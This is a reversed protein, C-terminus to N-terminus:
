ERPRRAALRDISGATALARGVEDLNEHDAAISLRGLASLDLGLRSLREVGDSEGAARFLYALGRRLVLKDPHALEVLAVQEDHALAGFRDLDLDRAAALRTLTETSASEVFRTRISEREAVLRRQKPGDLGVYERSLNSGHKRYEVVPDALSVFSGSAALDLWLAYDQLLDLGARFGGFRLYDARRVAAAPACIFNAEFFLFALPDPADRGILFEAALEDPFRRGTASIVFPLSYVLSVASDEFAALQAGVRGPLSRDDGGQIVLIDATSRAVAINYSRSVGQQVENRLSVLHPIDLRAIVQPTSDSSCDDIVIVEDVQDAISEVAEAIFGDQNFTAIIAATRQASM